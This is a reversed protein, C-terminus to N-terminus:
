HIWSVNKRIVKAPIGAVLSGSPVDKTVVAGAAVIADDGITVGPLIIANSAIWVHDGIVVPRIQNRNQGEDLLGVDNLRKIDHWTNDMILVGGAIACNAGISIHKSCDINAGNLYTNGRIHLTGGEHVNVITNRHFCVNGYVHLVSNKALQLRCKSGKDLGYDQRNIELSSREEMVMHSLRHLVLCSRHLVRISSSRPKKIRFYLWLTQLWNVDALIHMYKVIKVMPTEYRM